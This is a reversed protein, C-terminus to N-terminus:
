KEQEVVTGSVPIVITGVDGARLTVEANYTGVQLGRAALILRIRPTSRNFRQDKEVLYRLNPDDSGVSINSLDVAGFRLIHVTREKRAGVKIRGFRVTSPTVAILTNTSTIGVVDLRLWVSSDRAGEVKVAVAKHFDGSAAPLSARVTLHTTEGPLVSSAYDSASLCGCSVKVNTIRVTKEGINVLVFKHEIQVSTGSVCVEGFNWVPESCRLSGATRAPPKYSGSTASTSGRSLTAVCVFGAVALFMGVVCTIGFTRIRGQAMFMTNTGMSATISSHHPELEGDAIRENGHDRPECDV